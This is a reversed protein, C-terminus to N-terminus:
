TGSGLLGAAASLGPSPGGRRRCGKGGAAARSSIGRFDMVESVLAGEGAGLAAAAAGRAPLPVTQAGGSLRAAPAPAWPLGRCACPGGRRLSRLLEASM